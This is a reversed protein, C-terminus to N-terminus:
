KLLAKMAQVSKIPEKFAEVIYVGSFRQKLSPVLRKWDITGEGINLHSDNKGDNDTIHLMFFHSALGRIFEDTNGAIHAHGIDFAIQLNVNNVRIFERFESPTSMYSRQSSMNEVVVRIGRSSGYDILTLLSDRNLEWGDKAESTKPGPHQVFAIAGMDAAFDISRKIKRLANRRASEDPNTLNSEAELPSHVTLRIHDVNKLIRTMHENLTTSKYDVIEGAPLSHHDLDSLFSDIPRDSFTLYYSSLGLLSVDSVM